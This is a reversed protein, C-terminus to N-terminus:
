HHDCFSESVGGRLLSCVGGGGGCRCQRLGLLDSMRVNLAVAIKKLTEMDPMREGKEYHSIAMPTVGIMEALDRKSYARMLRYHKLNKELM